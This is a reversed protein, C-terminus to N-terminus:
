GSAISDLLRLQTAWADSEPDIVGFHGGEVEVLSARGGATNAREVYKEAQRFPVLDDDHAHVCWVPVELPLQRTPDVRDYRPGPAGVFNAVAETGLADRYAAALNAVGAQSIVARVDVRAAAWRPFRRRAASWLSLHGGASHGIAVVGGRTDVDLAPDALLDIAASIDDFTEPYGGGNGVRRYEPAWAVWGRSALDAALPQAYEVGYQAKWFGGHIVVAVGIPEAEPRSLLGFHSPDEGYTHRTLTTLGHAASTAPASPNPTQDM